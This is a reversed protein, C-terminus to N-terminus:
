KATANDLIGGVEKAIDAIQQQDVGGDDVVAYGDQSFATIRGTTPQVRAVVPNLITDGRRQDIDGHGAVARRSARIDLCVATARVESAVIWKGDDDIVADEGVRDGAGPGAEVTYQAIVNGEARVVTQKFIGDSACTTQRRGVGVAVAVDDAYVGVEARQDVVAARGPGLGQQGAAWSDVRAAVGQGQVRVIWQSKVLAARAVIADDVGDDIHARISYPAPGTIVEKQGTSLSFTPGRSVSRSPVPWPLVM